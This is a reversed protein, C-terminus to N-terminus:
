GSLVRLMRELTALATQRDGWGRPPVAGGRAGHHHQWAAPWARRPGWTLLPSEGGVSAPLSYLQRLQIHLCTPGSSHHGRLAVAVVERSQALPLSGRHPWRLRQPPCPWATVWPRSGPPPVPRKGVGSLSVTRSSIPMQAPGVSWLVPGAGVCKGLAKM